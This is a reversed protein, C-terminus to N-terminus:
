LIIFSAIAILVLYASFYKLSSNSTLKVMLKISLIGVVCAIIFALSLGLPSVSISVNSQSIEFIEMILSLVIIPLSMIFSFKASESKDVGSFLGASITAGSRSIGPFIALGQAIGM